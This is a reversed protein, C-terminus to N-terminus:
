HGIRHHLIAEVAFHYGQVGLGSIVGLCVDSFFSVRRFEERKFVNSLHVEVAPVNIALLTDRIAISTHTFAGPNIVIGDVSRLGQLFDIIAGEHNSQFFTLRARSSFADTLDRNLEDLNKKGYHHVERTGLLNLNPGNVIAITKM